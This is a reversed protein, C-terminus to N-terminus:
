FRGLVALGARVRLPLPVASPPTQDRWADELHVAYSVGVEPVLLLQENVLYAFGLSGGALTAGVSPLGKCDVGWTRCGEDKHTFWYDEHGLSLGVVM